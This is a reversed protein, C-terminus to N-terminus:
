QPIQERYRQKFDDLSSVGAPLRAEEVLMVPIGDRVPYALNGVEAILFDGEQRLKSRTLPCRLISLLDPDITNSSTTPTSPESM